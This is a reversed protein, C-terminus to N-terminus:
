IKGEALLYKVDYIKMNSANFEHKVQVRLGHLSYLRWRTPVYAERGHRETSQIEFGVLLHKADSTIKSDESPQLYFARFSSDESKANYTKCEIYSIKDKYNIEIDPYGASRHIGKKTKPITASVEIGNLAKRVFPEIHNGVENPRSTYIGEKYAAKTANTIGIRLKELLRADSPDKKNFPLVDFGTLTKIVITFPIDKLPSLFKSITAELEKIYEENKQM